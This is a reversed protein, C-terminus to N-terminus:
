RRHERHRFGRGHWMPLEVGYEELMGQVAEHIECRTAGEERMRDITEQVEAREEENLREFVRHMFPGHEPPEPMEIGYGEIRDRVAEHIECPMAGEERLDDILGHIEDRQEVTMQDMVDHLFHGWHGHPGFAYLTGSKGALLAVLTLAFLLTEIRKM